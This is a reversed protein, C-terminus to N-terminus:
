ILASSTSRNPAVLRCGAATDATHRRHPTVRHTVAGDLLEAPPFFACVYLTVKLWVLRVCLDFVRKRTEEACSRPAIRPARSTATFRGYGVFFFRCLVHGVEFRLCRGEEKAFLVFVFFFMLNISGKKRDLATDNSTKQSSISSSIKRSRVSDAM